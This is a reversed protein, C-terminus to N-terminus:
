LQSAPTLLPPIYAPSSSLAHYIMPVFLFLLVGTVILVLVIMLRVRWRSPRKLNATHTVNDYDEFENPPVPYSDM